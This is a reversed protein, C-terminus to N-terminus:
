TSAKTPKPSPTPTPKPASATSKAVNPFVHSVSTGPSTGSISHCSFCNQATANPDSNQPSVQQFTEMTTNALYLSGFQTAGTQDPILNNSWLGGSQFYNAFSTGAGAYAVLQPNLTQMLSLLMTNNQVVTNSLSPTSPQQNGWPNYRVVNTPVLTKSTSTIATNFASSVATTAITAPPTSSAPGQYFISPASSSTSFPVTTLCNAGAPCQGTQVNYNSNIFSYTNDPSNFLTEFTSWVMGPRGPVTGVVHIGVMALTRTATTVGDWTLVLVGGTGTSQKFAPVKGQITILGQAQQPTLYATDVWSSKIELALQNIDPFSTKSVKQIQQAQSLTTPFAKTSKPAIYYPVKKQNAQLEAFVDNVQITYYTVPYTAYGSKGPVPVAAGNLVLVGGGGAQGTSDSPTGVKARAAKLQAPTHLKLVVPKNVRASFTITAAHGSKLANLTGGPNRVLSFQGTQTSELATYFTPSFLNITGTKDTSTLWLFMQSGWKYFGCDTNLTSAASNPAVFGKSKGTSSQWSKFESPSLACMPAAVNSATVSATTDEQSAYATASLALAAGVLVFSKRLM